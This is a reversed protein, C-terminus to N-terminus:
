RAETEVIEAIGLLKSSIVLRAERAAELNIRVRVRASETVLGIMGGRKAFSRETSEGVTLISRGRVKDLISEVRANESKSIFLIHPHTVEELRAFRRIEIPKGHVTENKILEDLFRGFPDVGLIGIIFPANADGLADAPWEVFQSFNFLFTAKIDYERAAARIRMPVLVAVSVLLCFLITQGGRRVRGFRELFSPSWNAESVPKHIM